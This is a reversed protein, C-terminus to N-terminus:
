FVSIVTVAAGLAAAFDADSICTAVWQGADVYINPDGATYVVFVAGCVDAKAPKAPALAVAAFTLALLIKKM